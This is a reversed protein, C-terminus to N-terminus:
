APGGKRKRPKPAPASDGARQSARVAKDGTGSDAEMPALPLKPFQAHLSADVQLPRGWRAYSLVIGRKLRQFAPAGPAVGFEQAIAGWGAAPDHQWRQAVVRCPQGAAQGLTCAFYIDGPTWRPDALLTGVLARPASDYRVLEDVFADPYRAAYRNIDVLMADVWADGSRATAGSDVEEARASGLALSLVVVCSAFWARVVSGDRMAVPKCAAGHLPDSRKMPSRKMPSRKMPSRKMPSPKMPSPKM